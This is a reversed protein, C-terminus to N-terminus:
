RPARKWGSLIRTRIKEYKAAVPDDAFERKEWLKVFSLARYFAMMLCLSLGRAGDRYGKGKLYRGLFERAAAWIMRRYSFPIGRDYLHQAEIDTYRNLKEVFHSADRYNFHAICGDDDPALRLTRAGADKEMYRHVTETFRIKGRRFFRPLPTFGWGSHRVWDGMIYHRFPIEVIDVDDRVAIKALTEALHKPIMEDADVLLIWDGTAKEVAFKKAIDFALVKPHRHVAQTYERAIAVTGDESEMDVVVIEDCWTLTELCYRINTEENRTNVVASITPM